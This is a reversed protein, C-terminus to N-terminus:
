PVTAPDVLEGTRPHVFWGTSDDIVWLEEGVDARPVSVGDFVAPLTSRLPEDLVPQFIVGLLTLFEVPDHAPDRLDWTGGPDGVTVPKPAEFFRRLDPVDSHEGEVTGAVDDWLISRLERGRLLDPIRITHIAM